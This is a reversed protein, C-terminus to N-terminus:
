EEDRNQREPSSPHPGGEEEGLDESDEDVVMALAEDVVQV